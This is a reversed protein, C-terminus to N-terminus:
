VIHIFDLGDFISDAASSYEPEGDITEASAPVEIVYTEREILVHEGLKTLEAVANLDEVYVQLKKGTYAHEVATQKDM